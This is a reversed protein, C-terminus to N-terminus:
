RIVILKDHFDPRKSLAQVYLVADGITRFKAYEFGDARYKPDSEKHEPATFSEFGWVTRWKNKSGYVRVVPAIQVTEKWHIHVTNGNGGDNKANWENSGCDCPLEFTVPDVKVFPRELYPDSKQYFVTGTKLTDFRREM